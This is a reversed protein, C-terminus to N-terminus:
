LFICGVESIIDFHLFHCKLSGLNAFNWPPAHGWVGRSARAEPALFYKGFCLLVGRLLIWGVPRNVTYSHVKVTFFPLLFLQYCSSYLKLSGLRPFRKEGAGSRVFVLRIYLTKTPSQSPSYDVSCYLRSKLLLRFSFWLISNEDSRVRQFEMNEHFFLMDETILFM